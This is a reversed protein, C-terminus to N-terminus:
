TNKHIAFYYKLIACLFCLYNEKNWYVFVYKNITFFYFLFWIFHWNYNNANNKIENRQEIENKNSTQFINSKQAWYIFWKAWYDNINHYIIAMNYAMLAIRRIEEQSNFVNRDGNM